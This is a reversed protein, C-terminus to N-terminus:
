SSSRYFIILWTVTGCTILSMLYGIVLLYDSYIYGYCIASIQSLCFGLFTVLSCGKSNKNRYLQIAQPIFLSANFFLGIGFFTTVINKFVDIQMAYYLEKLSFWNFLRSPCRNSWVAKPVINRSRCLFCLLM